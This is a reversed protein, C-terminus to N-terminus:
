LTEAMNVDARDFVRLAVYGISAWLALTGVLVGLYWLPGGDPLLQRGDVHSAGYLARQFTIVIPTAPNILQVASDIGQEELWMASREYEYLIPTAWFWGLVLLELLHMTDRAYVNSPALLLALAACMVLCTVLAIPLLWVYSWDVPHRSALLVVAFAVIQLFFHVLAGGVSALPLVARPFKVKGVLSANSTISVTATIMASQILTWILLGCLVWIAFRAFGARLIAFVATYVVLLFLPQLMSWTFGLVSSKYRVALEKRVLMVLLERYGVIERLHALASRRGSMPRLAAPGAAPSATVAM